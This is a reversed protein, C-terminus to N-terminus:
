MDLLFYEAWSSLFVVDHGPLRLLLVWLLTYFTSLQCGNKETNKNNANIREIYKIM